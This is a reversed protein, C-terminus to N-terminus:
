LLRGDGFKEEIERLIDEVFKMKMDSKLSPYGSIETRNRKLVIYHPHDNTYNTYAKFYIAISIIYDQEHRDGMTFRKFKDNRKLADNVDNVLFKYGHIADENM